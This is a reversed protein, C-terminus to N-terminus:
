EYRLAEAPYIRSAQRAPLFTTVLSFVYAIAVIAIIQLWPVSFRLTEINERERVDNVINYSIITGLAVGIAAGLLAVFSSELLFSLQIMRRRYGIARLVGIQQRREVVARLSIVGLAAIGVLLGLGMFGTFIYNFARNAAASDRIVQDLVDTEMGNEQFSAELKRAAEKEDVGEAVRFRYTRIPVPFPINNDLNAKSAFMGFGIEGFSDTLQDLVGIVKLPVVVGTRPERVEIDIPSMTEDEYFLGELQFSVFSDNFGSRFPVVLSEVVTLNPDDQLAQWVDRDTPGFGDAILKFKYKTNALFDDDAGRIAYGKWSKEDAGIQRAELFVTTYGGIAEFEQIDLDPNQNIAENIDDIPTNVNVIGQVDWGGRVTDQDVKSVDFANTLISMVILTFIVLGFMALTLGTRFKASMPYAIATVLVPRLGGVRGTAFTAAKLILDANYMVTWVAAAVMAIGSIFFMEIGGGLEGSVKRIVGFPLVWFVLMLVGILSYAFRDRVDVRTSTYSLVTRISLGLGVIMLSVGIRFLAAEDNAMGSWTMLLGLLLALWGQKFPRWFLQFLSGAVVVPFSVAAWIASLLQNLARLPHLTALAFLGTGARQFPLLLATLPAILIQKWGTTSITIPSPLGRVAAVINLRSVRHASVAITAFTIIMGLCYSVIATRMSPHWTFRFDDDDIGSIIQNVIATILASVALGIVVGVAASVLAYATGEFVFMQVLHSRKAGVARAMGMESRRAAALMVFILFILLIGVMISFLGLTIFFTTVFSSILEAEDLIRRKIDIVRFEGLDSFLTDAEAELERLDARDLARLVEDSVEDDALLSVLEPTVADRQLEAILASVDSKITGQLSEQREELAKIVEERNLLIKLESAVEPDAFIVRLRETVDDSHDVGSLEDGRNSVVISNIEGERGFITQARQLPVVITSADGALGGKAVVGKVRLSLTTNELFVTLEDGVIAELQEAAEDNIYVEDRALEELRATAGSTLKFTGFGDLFEPAVGAVRARGESQSTRPNVAPVTQGIGPALGDILDFGELEKQLTEYREFPFYPSAGFSDESDARSSIIIEDITQLSDVGENRISFSITDGTGFAAAIIVTSLMVGVIILITQARRRPINRLGLKLMIPNRWALITVIGLAPLFIALLVVMIVSMSLGFLENM